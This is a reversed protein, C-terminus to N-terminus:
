RKDRASLWARKWLFATSSGGNVAAFAQYQGDSRIIGSAYVSETIAGEVPYIKEQASRCSYSVLATVGMGLLFCAKM